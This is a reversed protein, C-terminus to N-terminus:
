RLDRHVVRLELLDEAGDDLQGDDEEDLLEVVQRDLYGAVVLLQLLPGHLRDPDGLDSVRKLMTPENVADEFVLLRDAEGLELLAELGLLAAPEKVVALQPLPGIVIEEVLEKELLHADSIQTIRRDLQLLVFRLM